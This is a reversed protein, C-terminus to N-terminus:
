YFIKMSFYYFTFACFPSLSFLMLEAIWIDMYIKVLKYQVQFLEFGKIITEETTEPYAIM